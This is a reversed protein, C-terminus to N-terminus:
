QNWDVYQVYKIITPVIYSTFPFYNYTKRDSAPQMDSANATTSSLPSSHCTKHDLEPPIFMTPNSLTFTPIRNHRGLHRSGELYFICFALSFLRAAGFPKSLFGM